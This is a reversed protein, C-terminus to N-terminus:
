PVRAPTLTPGPPMPPPIPPEYDSYSPEGPETVTTAQEYAPPQEYRTADAVHPVEPLDETTDSPTTRQYSRARERDRQLLAQEKEFAAYSLKLPPYRNLCPIAAPLM